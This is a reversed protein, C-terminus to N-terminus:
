SVLEDPYGTSRINQKVLDLAAMALMYGRDPRPTRALVAAADEGTEHRVDAGTPPPMGEFTDFCHIRRTAGLRQLALAMTMVSGGRWVGCEVFDGPVDHRVTHEVA